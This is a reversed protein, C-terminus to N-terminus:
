KDYNKGRRKNLLLYPYGFYNRNIKEYGVKKLFNIMEDTIEVPTKKNDEGKYEIEIFKGLNTVLDLSIEYDKYRWVDRIKEVCVIFKFDLVNLIKYLQGINKIESEYEDCYDSKKNEDYHYNKYTIYYKGNSERLRLWENIPDFDIFNRHKPSYYNDIQHKIPPNFSANKKLFELIKTFSKVSIKIEIEIENLRM